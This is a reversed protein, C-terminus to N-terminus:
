LQPWVTPHMLVGSPLSAPRLGPWVTNSSSGAGVAAGGLKRGMGITALRDGMEVVASSKDSNSKSIFWVHSLIFKAWRV